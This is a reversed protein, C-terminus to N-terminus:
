SRLSTRFFDHNDDLNDINRRSEIIKLVFKLINACFIGKNLRLHRKLYECHWFQFILHNREIGQLENTECFGSKLEAKM